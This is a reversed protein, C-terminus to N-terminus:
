KISLINTLDMGLKALKPTIFLTDLTVCLGQSIAGRLKITKVRSKNLKIKSDTGFIREEIDPSLISDIPFYVCVDGVKFAGKQVVVQWDRVTAIELRDANPHLGVSKVDEVTVAFTSGEKEVLKDTVNTAFRLAEAISM